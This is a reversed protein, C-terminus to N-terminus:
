DDDFPKFFVPQPKKVPEVPEIRLPNALLWAYGGDPDTESGVIEVTGVLCGIDLDGLEDPIDYYKHPAYIYVRGRINTSRSRFEKTKEGRLILEAFPQRISLALM